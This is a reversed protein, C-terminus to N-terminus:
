SFVHVELQSIFGLHCEMGSNVVLESGASSDLKTVFVVPLLSCSHMGNKDVRNLIMLYM